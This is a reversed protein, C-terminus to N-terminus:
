DAQALLDLMRQSLERAAERIAEAEEEPYAYSSAELDPYLAVLVSVVENPVVGSARWQRAEHELARYLDDLASRNLGDASRLSILLETAADLLPEKGKTM